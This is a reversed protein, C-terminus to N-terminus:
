PFIEISQPNDSETSISILKQNKGVNTPHTPITAGLATTRSLKGTSFLARTKEM